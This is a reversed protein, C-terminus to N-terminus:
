DIGDYWSQTAILARAIQKGLHRPFTACYADNWRHWDPHPGDGYAWRVLENTPIPRDPHAILARAILKALHRPYSACNTTMLRPITTQRNILGRQSSAHLVASSNRRRLNASSKEHLGGQDFGLRRYGMKPHASVLVLCRLNATSSATHARRPIPTAGTKDARQSPESQLPHRRAGSSAWSAM